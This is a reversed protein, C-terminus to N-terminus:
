NRVKMSLAGRLTNARERVSAVGEESVKGTLFSGVGVASAGAEVFAGANSDNVGGTPVYKVDPLPGRISSLYGPGMNSAPFLKVTRVGLKYANMIESPTLCGPIVLLDREQCARVVDPDLVPSLAFKAGARHIKEVDETTRVTGAGALVRDFKRNLQQISQDAGPSDMTIEVTQVGAELLQEAIEMSTGTDFGRVVAVIRNNTM